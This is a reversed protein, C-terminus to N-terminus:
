APPYFLHRLHSSRLCCSVPPNLSFCYALYHCVRHALHHTLQHALYYCLYHLPLPLLLSRLSRTLSPRHLAIHHLTTIDFTSAALSPLRGSVMVLRTFHRCSCVSNAPLHPSPISIFSCSRAAVQLHLHRGFGSLYTCDWTCIHCRGPHNAALAREAKQTYPCARGGMLTQKSWGMKKEKGM